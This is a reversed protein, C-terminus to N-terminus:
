PSGFDNCRESGRRHSPSHNLAEDAGSRIDDAEIKGVSRHGFM